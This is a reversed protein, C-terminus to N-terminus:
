YLYLVKKLYTDLHKQHPPFINEPLSSLEFYEWGECKQPETLKIKGKYKKVLFGFNIYHDDERLVDLITILELEVGRVGTEEKLERKAADILKEGWELHGGPLGYLGEGFCNKRKGLLIRNESIILLDCAPNIKKRM